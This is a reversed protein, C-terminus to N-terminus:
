RLSYRRGERRKERAREKREREKETERKLKRGEDVDYIFRCIERDAASTNAHCRRLVCVQTFTKLRVSLAVKNYIGESVM